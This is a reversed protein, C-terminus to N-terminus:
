LIEQRAGAREGFLADPLDTSDTTLRDDPLSAPRQPLTQGSADQAKTLGNWAADPLAGFALVTTASIGIAATAILLSRLRKHM